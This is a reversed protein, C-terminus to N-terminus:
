SVVTGISLDVNPLYGRDVWIQGEELAAEKDKHLEFSALSPEQDTGDDNLDWLLVVYGLAEAM